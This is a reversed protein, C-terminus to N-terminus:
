VCNEGHLDEIKRYSDDYNNKSWIEQANELATSHARYLGGSSLEIGHEALHKNVENWTMAYCYRATLLHRDRDGLQDLLTDALARMATYRKARALFREAEDAYSDLVSKHPDKSGSTVVGEYNQTTKTALAFLEQIRQTDAEADGVLERLELLFDYAPNPSKWVSM